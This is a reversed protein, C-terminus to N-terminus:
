LTTKGIGRPGIFLYANAIRNAEIAHRLTKVVHEQGVVDEFTMPRYKLPLAIHEDAM